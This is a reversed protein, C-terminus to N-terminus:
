EFLNKQGQPVTWREGGCTPCQDANMAYTTDCDTCTKEPANIKLKHPHTSQPRVCERLLTMLGDASPKQEADILFELDSASLNHLPAEPQLRDAFSGGSSCTGANYCDDQLLM